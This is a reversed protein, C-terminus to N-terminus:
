VDTVVFRKDFNMKGLLVRAERLEEDDVARVDLIYQRCLFFYNM